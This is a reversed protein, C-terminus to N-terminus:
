FNLNSGNYLHYKAGKPKTFFDPKTKNKVNKWRQTSIAIHIWYSNNLEFICQSIINKDLGDVKNNYIDEYLKILLKRNNNGVFAIDAAECYSHQSTDSGGIKKNLEPCRVGSNIHIKYIANEGYQLYIHAQLKDLIKQCLDKLSQLRQPNHSDLLFNKNSSILSKHSTEIMEDLTFYKAFEYEGEYGVELKIIIRGKDDKISELVEKYEQKLSELTNFFRTDEKSLDIGGNDGYSEGGHIYFNERQTTSEITNTCDKDTYIPINYKGWTSQRDGRLMKSISGQNLTRIGSQKNDTSQSIDIYYTGEPIAGKDKDKQRQKSYEFYEQANNPNLILSDTNHQTTSDQNTQNQSLSDKTNNYSDISLPKSDM